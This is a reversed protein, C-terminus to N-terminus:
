VQLNENNTDKNGARGSEDAGGNDSFQDIRSVLYEAESARIRSVSGKGRCPGIDMATPEISSLRRRPAATGEEIGLTAESSAAVETAARPTRTDTVVTV